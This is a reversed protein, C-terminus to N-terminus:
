RTLSDVEALEGAALTWGSAAINAGAQGPHRMGAIVSAIEPKMALWSIALELVTHGRAEAFARLADAVRLNEDTLVGNTGIGGDGLRTGEPPPEGQRYKGTM